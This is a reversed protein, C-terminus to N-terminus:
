TRESTRDRAKLTQISPYRTVLLDIAVASESIHPESLSAGIVPVCIVMTDGRACRAASPPSHQINRFISIRTSLTLGGM